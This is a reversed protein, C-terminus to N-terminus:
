LVFINQNWLRLVSKKQKNLLKIIEFSSCMGARDGCILIEQKLIIFGLVKM